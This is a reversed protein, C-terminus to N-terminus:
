EEGERIMKLRKCLAPQSIGLLRAALTQNGGARALAEEVLFQASQKFTPLTDFGAFPNRGAAPPNPGEQGYSSQIISVLPAMALFNTQSLSIADFLMSKLERVNGPFPYTSLLDLLGKPLRPTPKGLARAGEALFHEVLLGLDGTRERLPPLHFQHTHLRYYLDKRFQGNAVKEKLQQHTAVIIRARLHRPHDSGLPFYEGEQLLRLLKVQSALSLDGMEDLFLTGGAAEEVMGKRPSDAGTYAGKVHGFLTDAFVADDLGAVNISVLQGLCGSLKHAAKVMLEKGTGSEGTIALPHPSPAVAELYAFISLMARDASIIDAFAEPHKIERSVMRDGLDQSTRQLELMRVARLVGGIIRDRDDTKVFYDFAGRKICRVVTDLQNDGSIMIVMAEPHRETIQELLDEGSIHPMNLDLLVLRTDGSEMMQLAQRSDDCTTLNTIGAVSKLSISLSRLWSPQDDVLLVNFTPYTTQTM